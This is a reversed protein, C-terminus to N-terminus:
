LPYRFPRGRRRFLLVPPDVMFRDLDAYPGSVKRGRARHVFLLALLQIESARALSGAHASRRMGDERGTTVSRYPARKNKPMSAGTSTSHRPLLPLSTSPPSSVTSDLVASLIIRVAVWTLTYWQLLTLPFVAKIFRLTAMEHQCSQFSWRPIRLVYDRPGLNDRRRRPSFRSFRFIRSHLSLLLVSPSHTRSDLQISAATAAAVPRRTVPCTVPSATWRGVGYLDMWSRPKRSTTVRANLKSQSALPVTGM